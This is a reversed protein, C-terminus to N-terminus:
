SPAFRWFVGFSIAHVDEAANVIMKRVTQTVAEMKGKLPFTAPWPDATVRVTSTASRTQRIGVVM